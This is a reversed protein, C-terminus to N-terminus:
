TRETSQDSTLADLKEAAALLEAALRRANPADLALAIRYGVDKNRLDANLEAFPPGEAFYAHAEVHYPHFREDIRLSAHGKM